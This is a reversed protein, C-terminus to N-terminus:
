KEIVFGMQLLMKSYEKLVKFYLREMNGVAEFMTPIEIYGNTSFCRGCKDTKRNKCHNCHNTDYEKFSAIM